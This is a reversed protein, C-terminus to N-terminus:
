GRRLGHLGHYYTLPDFRIGKIKMRDSGKMVFSTHIICTDRQYLMQVICKDERMPFIKTQSQRVNHGGRSCDTM